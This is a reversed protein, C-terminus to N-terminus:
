ARVDVGLYSAPTEFLSFPSERPAAAVDTSVAPEWGIERLAQALEKAGSDLHRRAEADRASFRVALGRGVVDLKTHVRGLKSLDTDVSVHFGRAEQAGGRGGERRVVRIPVSTTRGDHRVPVELIAVGDDRLSALQTVIRHANMRDVNEFITGRSERAQRFEPLRSLEAHEMEELKARLARLQPASLRLHQRFRDIAKGVDLDPHDMFKRALRTADAPDHPEAPVTRGVLELARDLFRLRSSRDLIGPLSDSPPRRSEIVPREDSTPAIYEAFPELLPVAPPTAPTFGGEAISALRTVTRAEPDIGHAVLFAAADFRGAGTAARVAALAIQVREKEIPANMKLLSRVLREAEPTEPIGLRELLSKADAPTLVVDFLTATPTSERVKLTLSDGLHLSLPLDLQLLTEQIQLLYRSDPLVNVVRAAVPAGPTLPVPPSSVSVYPSVAM